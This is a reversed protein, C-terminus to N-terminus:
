MKDKEFSTERDIFPRMAERLDERPEWGYAYLLREYTEPLVQSLPRDENSVWCRLVRHSLTRNRVTPSTLIRMLYDLGAPMRHRLLQVLMDLKGYTDFEKGLGIEDRPDDAISDFPVKERFLELLAELHEPDDMLWRCQSYLGDFDSRMAELLTDKYPIGLQNALNMGRGRVAEDAVLARVADSELLADCEAVLDKWGRVKAYGAVADICGCDWIDLPQNGAQRVYRALETRPDELASIGAVPEGSLAAYVISTVASFEDHDMERQLREAIGAKVYCTLASYEPMVANNMGERLLWDRM